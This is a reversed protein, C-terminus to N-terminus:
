AEGRVVREYTDLAADAEGARDGLAPHRGRAREATRLIWAVADGSASTSPRTRPGPQPVDEGDGIDDADDAGLQGQRFSVLEGVDGSTAEGDGRAEAWVEQREAATDLRGLERLVREPIARGDHTAGDGGLDREVRAAQLLRYLHSVSVGFEAACCERWSAYGLAQWGRREYLDLLLLRADRLHCRVQTITARAEKKKMPIPHFIALASSM